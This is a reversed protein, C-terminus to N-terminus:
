QLHWQGDSGQTYTHGQYTRTPANNTSPAAPVKVGGPATASSNSRLNVISQLAKDTFSRDNQILDKNLEAANLPSAQNAVIRNMLGETGNMNGGYKRAVGGFERGQMIGAALTAGQPTLAGNQLGSTILAQIMGPNKDAESLTHAIAIRQAPDELASLNPSIKNDLIDQYQKVGVLDSITNKANTFGVQPAGSQLADMRSITIPNGNSDISQVAGYQAQARARAIANAPGTILSTDPGMDVQLDKNGPDGKDFSVVRGGVSHVSRRLYSDPGYQIQKGTISTANKGSAIDKQAQLAEMKQMVTTAASQPLTVGAFAGYKPDDPVVTPAMQAQLSDLKEGYLGQQSQRLGELSNQQQQQLGIKLANQQKEYDTPMGLHQLAAQSGDYTAQGLGSVLHQLFSKIPGPQTPLTVPSPPLPQPAPGPAIMGQSPTPTTDIPAPATPAMPGLQSPDSYNPMLSPDAQKGQIMALIQQVRPDSATIPQQSPDPTPNASM